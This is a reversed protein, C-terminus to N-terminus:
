RTGVSTAGIHIPLSNGMVGPTIMDMGQMAVDLASNWDLTNVLGGVAAPKPGSGLRDASQKAINVLWLTGTKDDTPTWLIISNFDTSASVLSPHQGDFASYVAQLKAFATTPSAGATPTNLQGGNGVTGIWEDNARDVLLEDGKSDAVTALPAGGALPIELLKTAGQNDVQVLVTGPDRGLSVLRAGHDHEHVSGSALEAGDLPGRKVWWNQSKKDYITHAVVKGDPTVLWGSVGPEGYAAVNYAGTDLDVRYLDMFFNFEDDHRIVQGLTSTEYTYGGFYGYWHGDIQATGFNGFVATVVRQQPPDIFVNIAKQTTINVAVVTTLPSKSAAVHAPDVVQSSTNTILLHDDGAWELDEVNASGVPLSLLVKNDTTAVIIRPAGTTTARFAYRDGLPSLRVLDMSMGGGSRGADPTAAYASSGAALAMLVGLFARGM